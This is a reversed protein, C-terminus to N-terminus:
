ASNASISTARATAPSAKPSNSDPPWDKWMTKPLYLRIAGAKRAPSISGRSNGPGCMSMGISTTCPCIPPTNSRHITISTSCRSIAVTGSVFRGPILPRSAFPGSCISIPLSCITVTRCSWHSAIRGRPISRRWRSPMSKGTPSRKLIPKMASTTNSPCPMSVAPRRRIAVYLGNAAYSSATWIDKFIGGGGNTIWLSWHQTDWARDHWRDYVPASPTSIAPQPWERRTQPGRQMTGHGGIFKVDNICSKEGAMWKCAVARDNYAGTNLGIGSLITGGGPPAEILPKPAGFGSFAPTSELLMIQTAIPSLGILRTEPKLTITESVVYWGQPVYIVPYKDAADQIIRTNDTLGDGNAGLDRLNVWERAPPLAPIDRPAFPPLTKLPTLEARTEVVPEATLSDIHVGHTFNRVKYLSGKGTIQTNSRRFHALIPTQRCDVNRLSIQNAYNNENSVILAPGSINEFRGDEIFIRDSYNERIEIVTPVNKAHLRVMTLGGEQTYIAAKRQGAFYTDIMMMQWGPSTKTTYIGYEGGYFAVNDMENGVDYLGAKGSGADIVANEIFSHQAFHTRLAVAHPNGEEIKLDINSLGSYFTGAGADRPPRGEEVIGSTFWFMYNAKGKDTEAPQQFGPSNKALFILPRKRGYGILRIAMPVYITKSIKYKGEPIFLIGFNKEAKLQNIAKQLEASVDTQGNNSIDFHDATFYVAEPDNLREQYISDVHINGAQTTVYFLNFIVLLIRKLM